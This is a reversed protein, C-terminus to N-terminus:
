AGTSAQGVQGPPGPRTAGRAIDRLCAAEGRRAAGAARASAFAVRLIPRSGEDPYLVLDLHCQSAQYHWIEAPGESRRLRPEGLWQRVTEPTQGVLGGAAPPAAGGATAAAPTAPAAPLQRAPAAALSPTPAGVGVLSAQHSALADQLAAAAAEERPQQACATPLLLLLLAARPPADRWPRRAFSRGGCATM